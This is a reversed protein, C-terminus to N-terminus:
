NKKKGQGPRTQEGLAGRIQRPNIGPFPFCVEGGSAALMPQRGKTATAPGCSAPLRAEQWGGAGAERQEHRQLAELSPCAPCTASKPHSSSTPAPDGGQCLAYPQSPLFGGAGYVQAARRVGMPVRLEEGSSGPFPASPALGKEEEGKGGSHRQGGEAWTHQESSTILPCLSVWARREEVLRPSGQGDMQGDM